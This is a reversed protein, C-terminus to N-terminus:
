CRSCGFAHSGDMYAKTEAKCLYSARFFLKALEGPNRQILHYESNDPFYVLGKSQEWTIGLARQWAGEIRSAMNEHDSKFRGLTHYADRNLLLLVHYHPRRDEGYEKAWVYRVASQHATGNLKGARYRDYQIKEKLSTIFRSIVDSSVGCAEPPINVPYRLDFRVAFSRPHHELARRITEYLKSLYEKILPGRGTIVPLGEYSSDTYLTLNTNARLRHPQNANFTNM